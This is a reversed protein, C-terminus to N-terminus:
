RGDNCRFLRLEHSLANALAIAAAKAPAISGCRVGLMQSCAFRGSSVAETYWDCGENAGAAHLDLLQFESVTAFECTEILHTPIVRSSKDSLSNRIEVGM